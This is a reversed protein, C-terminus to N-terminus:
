DKWKEGEFLVNEPEIKSDCASCYVYHEDGGKGHCFIHKEELYKPAAECEPCTSFIQRGM